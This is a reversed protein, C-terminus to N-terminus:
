ENNDIKNGSYLFYISNLDVEVKSIFKNYIEKLKNDLECQIITVKQKFIFEVEVM